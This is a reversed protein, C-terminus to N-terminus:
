ALRLASSEQVVLGHIQEAEFDKIVYSPEKWCSTLVEAHEVSRAILHIDENSYINSYYTITKIDSMWELNMVYLFKKRITPIGMTRYMSQVSTGIVIGPYGWLYLSPYMAFYPMTPLRDFQEYFISVDINPHKKLMANIEHTLFFGEQTTGLSDILFACPALGKAQSLNPRSFRGM